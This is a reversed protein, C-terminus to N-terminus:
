LECLVQFDPDYDLVLEPYGKLFGRMKQSTLHGRLYDVYEEFEPTGVRGNLQPCDEGVDLALLLRGEQRMLMFPWLRCWLPAVDYIACRVGAVNFPCVLYAGERQTLKVRYVSGSVREFLSSDFGREIAKDYEERTFLPFYEQNDPHFRCCPDRCSFCGESSTFKELM